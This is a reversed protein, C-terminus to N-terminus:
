TEQSTELKELIMELLITLIKSKVKLQNEDTSDTLLIMM